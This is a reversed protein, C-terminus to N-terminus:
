LTNAAAPYHIHLSCIIVLSLVIFLIYLTANNQVCVLHFLIFVFKMMIM